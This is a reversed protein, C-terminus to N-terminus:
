KLHFPERVGQDAIGKTFEDDLFKDVDRDNIRRLSKQVFAEILNRDIAENNQRNLEKLNIYLPIISNINHSKKARTAMQHAIHRLAVSKGSGPAGEVIIFQEQSTRLAKSLSKERRIENGGLMDLLSFPLLLFHRRRGEAEVEAELEAFHEDKWDEALDIREIEHEIHKAFMRRRRM